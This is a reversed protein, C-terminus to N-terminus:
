TMGVLKMTDGLFYEERREIGQEDCCSLRVFMKGLKGKNSVIDVEGENSLLYALSIM